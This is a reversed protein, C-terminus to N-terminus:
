LHKSVRVGTYCSVSVTRKGAGDMSDRSCLAKTVTWGGQKGKPLTSNAVFCHSIKQIFYEDVPVNDVTVFAVLFEELHTGRQPTLM